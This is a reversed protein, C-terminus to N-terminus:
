DMSFGLDALAPESLHIIGVENERSQALVKLDHLKYLRALYAGPSIKEQDRSEYQTSELKYWEGAQDKRFAVYHSSLAPVVLLRDHVPQKLAAELDKGMPCQTLKLNMLAGTLSTNSMMVSASKLESFVMDLDLPQNSIRAQLAPGGLFANGAHRGCNQGAQAEMYFPGTPPMKWTRLQDLPIPGASALPAPSSVTPSEPSSLGGEDDSVVPSPRGLLSEMFFHIRVEIGETLARKEGPPMPLRDVAEKALQNWDILFTSLNNRLSEKDGEYIILLRCYADYMDPLMSEVLKETHHWDRDPREGMEALKQCLSEHLRLYQASRTNMLATLKDRLNRVNLGSLQDASSKSLLDDNLSLSSDWVSAAVLMDEIAKPIFELDAKSVAKAGEIVTVQRQSFDYSAQKQGEGANELAEVQRLLSSAQGYTNASGPLM